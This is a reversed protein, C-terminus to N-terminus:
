KKYSKSNEGKSVDTNVSVVIGLENYFSMGCKQLCIKAKFTMRRKLTVRAELNHVHVRNIQSARM